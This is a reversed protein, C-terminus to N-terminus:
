RLHARMRGCHHAICPSPSCITGVLVALTVAAMYVPAGSGLRDAVKMNRMYRAVRGVPFQLGAKASRSTSKGKGKGRGGKGKGAM